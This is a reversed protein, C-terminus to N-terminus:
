LSVSQILQNINSAPGELVTQNNELRNNPGYIAFEGTRITIKCNKIHVNQLAKGDLAIEQGDIEGSLRQHVAGRTALVIRVFDLEEDTLGRVIGLSGGAFGFAAKVNGEFRDDAEGSNATVVVRGNKDFFKASIMTICEKETRGPPQDFITRIKFILNGARDRIEYGLFDGTIKSCHGPNLLLLNRVLRCLLNGDADLLNGTLLPYPSEKPPEAGVLFFDDSSGLEGLAFANCVNGAILYNHFRGPMIVNGVLRSHGFDALM